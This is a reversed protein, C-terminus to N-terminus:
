FEMPIQMQGRLASKLRWATQEGLTYRDRKVRKVLGCRILSRVHKHFTPSPVGILKRFTSLPIPDISKNTAHADILFCFIYLALNKDV